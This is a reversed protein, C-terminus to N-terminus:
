VHAEDLAASTTPCTFRTSRSVAAPEQTTSAVTRRAKNTRDDPQRASGRGRARGGPRAMTPRGSPGDATSTEIARMAEYFALVNRLEHVAADGQEAAVALPDHACPADGRERREVYRGVPTAIMLDEETFPEREPPDGRDRRTM